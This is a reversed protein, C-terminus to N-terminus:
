KPAGTDAVPTLSKIYAVLYLIQEASVQGVFAPMLPQYGQSIVARPEIISQRIYDEDFLITQGDDTQVFGGFRGALNPGRQDRGAAHCTDCRLNEFLVQGAEVRKGEEFEMSKLIAEVRAQVVITEKAETRAVFERVVPVDARTVDAVVVPTPPPPAAAQKAAEVAAEDTCGATALLVTSLAAGIIILQLRM